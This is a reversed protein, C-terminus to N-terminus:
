APMEREARQKARAKSILNFLFEPTVPTQSIRVGFPRLADEVASIIAAAAPITGAEGVGKAGLPNIPSPTERYLTEFRPLEPATVLLYDAFTTTLPQGEEDYGMLEYLANGIGHAIGGKIQGDVIMPNILRGSDHLAIYHSVGVHGTEIDVEVEAVHCANAYALADTKWQISAELGPEIEAPFAYGPAGRLRTAIEALSIGRNSGGRGRVEGGALELEAEPLDLMTSAARIAKAAVAKAAIHVSSGATVLQRSAFGGLGFQAFATDGAIVGVEEPRVGLEDACIQALATALGQGMATAGTFVSVRGSPAVRVVGSEFPGRGTGKVANAIGIGLHRGQALAEAQRRPFDHWGAAALAEAQCAPYDGSDYVIGAGSRAKLPKTYPMKEPPILNRARVAVRDIGLRAAVLDIMREMAFAAQPYGAGRVSSVPVKNTHAILVEVAFAPVVYPGTVASASNYPLNVAKPAYAGQDHILRGRMGLIRGDGDTAVELSWYQDREQVASLFNERRDEIWKVNRGLLLAAAPVALEEPYICYKPGFGGGVDPTVVRLCNEDLGLMGALTHFLDHPMQTSSWVCLGGDPRTEALVGRGELPHGCGRHQWLEDAVVHTAKAFAEDVDGFAVMMRNLLNSALETRVAPTGAEVARRADAVVPLPEYDVFVAGAADEAEYRTDAVVLAIPEGVYAAEHGNLVFPTSSNESSTPSAGLPLRLSRLVPRLDAATLVAHVGPMGAAAATDIAAIRAHASASRVFAAHLTGPLAIDDVYRGKGVLLAPDEIRPVSRGVARM